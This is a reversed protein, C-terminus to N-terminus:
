FCKQYGFYGCEADQFGSEAYQTTGVPQYQIYETCPTNYVVHFVVPITVVQGNDTKNSNQLFDSVEKELSRFQQLRQAGATGTYLYPESCSASVSTQAHLFSWKVSFTLLAFIKSHM